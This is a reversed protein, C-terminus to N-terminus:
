ASCKAMMKLPGSNRCAKCVGYIMRNCFPKGNLPDLLFREIEVQDTTQWDCGKFDPGSATNLYNLLEVFVASVNDSTEASFALPQLAGATANMGSFAGFTGLLIAGKFM